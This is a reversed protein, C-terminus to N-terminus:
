LWSRFVDLGSNKRHAIAILQYRSDVKLINKLDQVYEGVASLSVGLQEAIEGNGAGDGVLLLAKYRRRTKLAGFNPRKGANAPNKVWGYQLCRAIAETRNSAGAKAYIQDFYWTAKRISIDFSRAIDQTSSCTGEVLMTIIQQEIASLPNGEGRARHTNPAPPTDAPRRSTM